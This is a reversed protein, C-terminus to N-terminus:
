KAKVGRGRIPNLAKLFKHAFDPPGISFTDDPLKLIRGLAVAHFKIRKDLEAAAADRERVTRALMGREVLYKAAIQMQLILDAVGEPDETKFVGAEVGEEIIRTLVPRMRETWSEAIRQYLLKSEPRLLSAFVERTFEVTQLRIEAGRDLVQQLRTKPDVDKAGIVPELIEYTQDTIREFLAELLAEKSAFHHYFMGKSLGAGAIIDNLSTNDFGREVFMKFAADLIEARRIEPHKIVRPM